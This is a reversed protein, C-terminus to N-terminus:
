MLIKKVGDLTVHVLFIVMVILKDSGSLFSENFIRFVSRCDPDPGIPVNFDNKEPNFPIIGPVIVTCSFLFGNNDPMAEMMGENLIRNTGTYGVTM